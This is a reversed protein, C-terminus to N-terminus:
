CHVARALRFRRLRDADQNVTEVVCPHLLSKDASRVTAGIDVPMPVLSIEFPEWDIARRTPLKLDNASTDEIYRYVKYGVSVSRLIKDRVDQWIPEVDDRRSFRVDATGKGNAIRASNPEVTGLVNAISYASHSDLLSGVSNLRELRVHGPEMSLTEIYRKGTMWDFRTNPAGTSFVLTVTRTDEQISTFDARLSLPQLDITRAM